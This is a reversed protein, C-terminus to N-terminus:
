LKQTQIQNFISNINNELKNDKKEEISLLKEDKSKINIDKQNIEKKKNEFLIYDNNENKNKIEYNFNTDKNIPKISEQKNQNSNIEKNIEINSNKIANEEKSYFSQNNNTNIKIINSKKENTYVKPSNDSIKNIEKKLIDNGNIEKEEILEKQEELYKKNENKNYNIIINENINNNELIKTKSTIKIKDNDNNAEIINSTNVNVFVIEEKKEEINKLNQLINTKYSDDPIYVNKIENINYKNNKYINTETEKTYNNNNNNVRFVNSIDLDISRYNNNYSKVKFGNYLDYEKKIEDKNKENANTLSKNSIYNIKSKKTVINNEKEEKEKYIYDNNQDNNVEYHSNDKQNEFKRVEETNGLEKKVMEKFNIKVQSLIDNLVKIFKNKNTKFIDISKIIFDFIKQKWIDRDKVETIIEKMLIIINEEFGEKILLIYINEFNYDNKRQKIIKEKIDNKKYAILNKLLWRIKSKEYYLKLDNVLIKFGQKSFFKKFINDDKSKLDTKLFFLYYYNFYTYFNNKEKQYSNFIFQNFKIIENEYKKIKQITKEDSKENILSSFEKKILNIKKDIIDEASNLEELKIFSHESHNNKEELCFYNECTLCFFNSNKDKQEVPNLILPYYKKCIPTYIDYFKEKSIKENLEVLKNENTNDANMINNEAKKVCHNQFWTAYDEIVIQVNSPEKIIKTEFKGQRQQNSVEKRSHTLFWDHYKNNRIKKNQQKQAEILIDKKLTEQKMKINEKVNVSYSKRKKNLIDSNLSCEM